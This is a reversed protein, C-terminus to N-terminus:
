QAPWVLCRCGDAVVVRATAWALEKASRRPFIPSLLAVIARIDVIDHTLEPDDTLHFDPLIRFM